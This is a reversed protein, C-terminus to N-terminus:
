RAAKYLAPNLSADNYMKMQRYVKMRRAGAAIDGLLEDISQSLDQRQELLVALKRGCAERHRPEADERTSEIRMHCIKLALISLRDVVWAPSETNIRAGPGPTVSSFLSLFYDDILEVQNTREQNLRDIRRKMNLAEEPDIDPRRIEDEVHWQVADIWCKHYLLREIGQADFPNGAKANVSDILHYDNIAQDFIRNAMKSFADPGTFSLTITSASANGSPPQPSPAFATRNYCDGIISALRQPHKQIFFHDGKLLASRFASRTFRSWNSIRDMDEEDSGMLAFLPAGTPPEDDLGHNEAVEFDARLIPEFFGFLEDNELFEAPAGGMKRLEEKFDQRAMLYRRKKERGPLGPGANGSVILAVPTRGSRELLNSIRLALYAGMSHGYILFPGPSLKQRVQRFVDDAARNFDNLLPEGLRKGRGPLEISVVEFNMLLPTMFQFSYSNGGAFHLLFLQPKKM